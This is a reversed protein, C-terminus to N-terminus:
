KLRFIIICNIITDRKASFAIYIFGFINKLVAQQLRKLIEVVKIIFTLEFVPEKGYDGISVNRMVPFSKDPFEDAQIFKFIDFLKVPQYGGRLRIINV